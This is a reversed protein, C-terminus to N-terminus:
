EFARLHYVNLNSLFYIYFSFYFALLFTKTVFFLCVRILDLCIVSSRIRRLFTISLIISFMPLFMILVYKFIKSTVHCCKLNVLVM